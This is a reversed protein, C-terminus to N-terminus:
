LEKTEEGIKELQKMVSETIPVGTMRVLSYKPLDLGIEIKRAMAPYIKGNLAESVHERQVGKLGKAEMARVLDAQRMNRKKLIIKVYTTIDIM